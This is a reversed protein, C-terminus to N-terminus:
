SGTGIIRTKGRYAANTKPPGCHRTPSWAEPSSDNADGTDTKCGSGSREGRHAVDQCLFALLDLVIYVLFAADPVPDPPQETTRVVAGILRVTVALPARFAAALCTAVRTAAAGATAARATTAGAATIVAPIVVTAIVTTTTIIAPIIVASVVATTIVPAFAFATFPAFAAFAAFAAIVVLQPRLTLM